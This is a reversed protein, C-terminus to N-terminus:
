GELLMTEVTSALEKVRDATAFVGGSAEALRSLFRQGAGGEPGCYITNIKNKYQSAVQLVRDEGDTPQGDSILFFKMGEVDAVKTFQLAKAMKTDAGMLSPQGGPYFMPTNSFGIVAVKGSNRQQLLALEHCAREYRTMGDADSANMSGSTDVIVVMEASLFTEALSQNEQQSIAGLSGPIIAKSMEM